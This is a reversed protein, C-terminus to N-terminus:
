YPPFHLDEPITECFPSFTGGSYGTIVAGGPRVSRDATKANAYLDLLKCYVSPYEARILIRSAGEPAVNAGLDLIRSIPHETILQDFSGYLGRQGWFRDFVKLFESGDYINFM